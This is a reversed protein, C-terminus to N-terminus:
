CCGKKEVMNGYVKEFIGRIEKMDKEMIINKEPGEIKGINHFNYYNFQYRIALNQAENLTVNLKENEVYNNGIIAVGFGSRSAEFDEIIGKLLEFSYKNSFDFVFVAGNIKDFKRSYYSEKNIKIKRDKLDNKIYLTSEIEVGNNLVGKCKYKDKSIKENSTTLLNKAIFHNGVNEDGCILISMEKLSNGM